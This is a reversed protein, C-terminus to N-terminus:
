GEQLEKLTERSVTIGVADDAAVKITTGDITANRAEGGVIVKCVSYTREGKYEPDLERAMEDVKALATIMYPDAAIVQQDAVNSQVVYLQKKSM